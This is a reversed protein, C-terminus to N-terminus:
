VKRRIGGESEESGALAARLETLCKETADHKGRLVAYENLNHLAAARGIRVDLEKAREDWQELLEEIRKENSM